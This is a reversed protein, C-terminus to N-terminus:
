GGYLCRNREARDAIKSCESVKEQFTPEIPTDDKRTQEGACGSLLVMALPLFM